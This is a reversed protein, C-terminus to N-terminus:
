PERNQNLAAERVKRKLLERTVTPLNQRRQEELHEIFGAITEADLNDYDPLVAIPQWDMAHRNLYARRNKELAERLTHIHFVQYTESWELLWLENRKM